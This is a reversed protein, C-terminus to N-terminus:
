APQSREAEPRMARARVPTASHRGTAGLLGKYGGQQCLHAANANGADDAAASTVPAAIALTALAVAAVRSFIQRKM